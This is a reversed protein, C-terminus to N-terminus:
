VLGKISLNQICYLNESNVDGNFALRIGSCGGLCKEAYTCKLCDGKLNEKKFNRRWSFSEPNEWIERLTQTKINGEVKKDARMSTCGVIDGNHLIGFAEIGAYCGDWQAINESNFSTKLIKRLREDYYGICDAPFIAIKGEQSVQECYNIVKQLDQPELTWDLHKTFTGMPMGIQVQWIPVKESILFHKLENLHDINKKTLTTTCGINVGYKNLIRYSQKAREFSGEKRMFDHIYSPGDLSINVRVDDKIKGLERAISEDILWGNSILNIKLGKSVSYKVIKILDKRTFPEGGSISLWIMGMDCCMDVFKLAEETTLEGELANECASGCHKCRMNCEMTIEWVCTIPKKM